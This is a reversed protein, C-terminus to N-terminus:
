FRKGTLKIRNSYNLSTIPRETMTFEMSSTVGFTKKFTIFYDMYNSGVKTIYSYTYDTTSNKKLTLPDNKEIPTITVSNDNFIVKFEKNMYKKTAKQYDRDDFTQVDTIKFTQSFSQLNALM